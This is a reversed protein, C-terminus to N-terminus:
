AAKMKVTTKALSEVIAARGFDQPFDDVKIVAKRLAEKRSWLAYEDATILNEERAIFGLEVGPRPQMKGKKVAKRIKEDVPECALTALFAAELKGTVDSEGKPLYM